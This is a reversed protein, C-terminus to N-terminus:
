MSGTAEIGFWWVKWRLTFIGYGGEMSCPNRWSDGTKPNIM